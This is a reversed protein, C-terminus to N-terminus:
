FFIFGEKHTFYYAICAAAVLNLVAHARMAPVTLMYAHTLFVISIGIYYFLLHLNM